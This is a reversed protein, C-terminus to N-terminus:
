ACSVARAQGASSHAMRRETLITTRATLRKYTKKVNASPSIVNGDLDSIAFFGTSRKGKVFGIGKPTEILDFKRLGFLKGTPIVKESHCGNTQRYDGKSVHKKYYVIDSLDVLEGEECCVAVADHYHTKSLCLVQERKFKTEYGYTEEFEGFQKKLQSKVIGIETANKTRSRKGKIEIKGDHVKDHCSTCLTILNDPTDTGGDSRFVIHHVHLKTNKKKCEQCQYNDRDLIYAKVNYYGKQQGNQYDWRKVDSNSIKHIDFSATEVKWKSVPLISEVFKKEKLHSDVKSKISPALRGEKKMSARNQWRPERYRVKRSRRTRRYRKRQKMKRSVNNRLQVESQYIVRGNAIAACGIKKSGTDMGATVEQKYGSSGYLLKITFPTRKIVKAKDNELLKRAKAPSCPMLPEFDRNVIYVLM